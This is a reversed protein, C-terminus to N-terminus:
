RGIDARRLAAKGAPSVVRRLVQEVGAPDQKRGDRLLKRMHNDLAIRFRDFWAELEHRNFRALPDRLGTQATAWDLLGSPKEGLAYLGFCAELRKGVTTFPDTVSDPLALLAEDLSRDMAALPKDEVLATATAIVQSGKHDRAPVLDAFATSLTKLGGRSFRITLRQVPKGEHLMGETSLVDGPGWEPKGSHIVVDGKAFSTALM